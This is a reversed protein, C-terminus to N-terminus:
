RVTDAAPAEAAVGRPFVIVFSRPGRQILATKDPPVSALQAYWRQQKLYDNRELFEPVFLNVSVLSNKTKKALSPAYSFPRLERPPDLENHVSGGYVLVARAERPGREKRIADVKKELLRAIALLLKEYDVEGKDDLLARYEACSVELIHPAVGLARTRKVLKVLDTEVTEPRQTTEEVQGVVAQEEKGCNGQTVWTELVLDSALPALMPLLEDRFHVLSSRVRPGGSIEHVEGFGIVRPTPGALVAQLAEVPSDFLRPAPPGKKPGRAASVSPTSGALLALAAAVAAALAPPRSRCSGHVPM